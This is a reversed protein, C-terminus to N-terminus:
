HNKAKTLQLWYSNLSMTTAAIIPSVMIGFVPYLVGPGTSERCTTTLFDYYAVVAKM